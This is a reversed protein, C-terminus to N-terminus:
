LAVCMIFAAAGCAIWGSWRLVTTDIYSGTAVRMGVPLMHFLSRGTLNAYFAPKSRKGAQGAREFRGARRRAFAHALPVRFLPIGSPTCADSALHSMYGTLWAGTALTAYSKETILSTVFFVAAGFLSAGLLTHTFGRHMTFTRLLFGTIRLINSVLLLLVRLLSLMFGTLAADGFPSSSQRRRRIQSARRHSASKGRLRFAQQRELYSAARVPLRELSAGEADLDPFLGASVGLVFLAAVSFMHTCDMGHLATGQEFQFLSQLYIPCPSMRVGSALLYFTVSAASIAIHTKGTM